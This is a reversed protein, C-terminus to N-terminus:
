YKSSKLEDRKLQHTQNRFEPLERNKITEVALHLIDETGEYGVFIAFQLINMTVTAKICEVDAFTIHNCQELALIKKILITDKLKAM